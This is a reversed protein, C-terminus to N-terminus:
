EVENGKLCNQRYGMLQLNWPVHLGCRDEAALPQIHDVTLHLARALKYLWTLQRWQTESLWDPTARRRRAEWTLKRRRKKKRPTALKEQQAEALKEQRARELKEQRAEERQFALIRGHATM